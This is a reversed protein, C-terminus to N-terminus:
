HSTCAHTCTCGGKFALHFCFVFPAVFSSNFITHTCKPYLTLIVMWTKGSNAIQINIWIEVICTLFFTFNSLITLNNEKPCCQHLTLTKNYFLKGTQSLGIHKGILVLVAIGLLLITHIWSNKSYIVIPDLFYKKFLPKIIATKNNSNKSCCFFERFFFIIKYCSAGRGKVPIQGLM